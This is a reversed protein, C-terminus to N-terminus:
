CESHAGPLHFNFPLGSFRCCCPSRRADETRRAKVSGNTSALVVSLLKAPELGDGNGEELSVKFIAPGDPYIELLGKLRTTLDEEQGYPEYVAEDGSDDGLALQVLSRVGLKQAVAPSIDEHLLRHELPPIWSSDRFVIDDALQMVGAEDPLYLDVATEHRRWTATPNALDQAVASVCQLEQPTLSRNDRTDMALHHLYDLLLLPSFTQAVGLHKFLTHYDHGLGAELTYLYPSLNVVSSFAVRHPPCFTTGGVWVCASAQLEQLVQSFLPDEDLSSLEKFRIDLVSYLQGCNENLATRLKDLSVGLTPCSAPGSAGGDAPAEETIRRRVDEWHKACALLQEGVVAAPPVKDLGLYKLVSKGAAFTLPSDPPLLLLRRQSSCQWAYRYLFTEDPTALLPLDGAPWPLLSNPPLQQVPLWAISRLQRYFTDRTLRPEENQRAGSSSRRFRNRLASFMGTNTRPRVDFLEEDHHVIFALLLQGREQKRSDDPSLAVREALTLISEPSISTQLGLMRLAEVCAPQTGLVEAPYATRADLIDGIERVAPDYLALPPRLIGSRDPVFALEALGEVEQRRKEEDNPPLGDHWTTLFSILWTLYRQSLVDNGATEVRPLVHERLLVASSVPKVGLEQVLRRAQHCATPLALFSAPLIARDATLEDSQALHLLSPDVDSVARYKETAERTSAIDGVTPPQPENDSQAPPSTTPVTDVVKSGCTRFIPLTAIIRLLSPSATLTDVATCFYELLADRQLPTLHVFPGQQPPVAASGEEAPPSSSNVLAKCARLVGSPTADYVCRAALLLDTPIDDRWEPQLVLTGVSQLASAVNAPLQELSPFVAVTTHSPIILDGTSAPIIPTDGLLQMCKECAARRAERDGSKAEDRVLAPLLEWLSRLWQDGPVDAVLVGAEGHWVDRSARGGGAQTWSRPLVKETVVKALHKLRPMVVQTGYLADESALVASLADDTLIDPHVLVSDAAKILQFIAGSCLYLEQINALPPAPAILEGSALPLVPLGELASLACGDGLLYRLLAVAEHSAPTAGSGVHRRWLARVIPPTIEELGRGQRSSARQLGDAVHAPLILLPAGCRALTSAVARTEPTCPVVYPVATPREWAGGVVPLCAENLAQDYVADALLSWPPTVVDQGPWMSYFTQYASSFSAEGAGEGETVPPESLLGASEFQGRMQRLLRFFLSPLADQLLSANWESRVRHGGTLGEGYWINLRSESTEFYGNSHFPLGTKTPLPLFVYARGQIPQWLGHAGEGTTPAPQLPIAVGAFPVLALGYERAAPSLAL